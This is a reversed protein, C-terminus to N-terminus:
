AVKQLGPGDSDPGAATTQYQRASVTKIWHPIAEDYKIGTMGPGAIPM